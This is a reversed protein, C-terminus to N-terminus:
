SLFFFFLSLTLQRSLSHISHLSSLVQIRQKLFTRKEKECWEVCANCLALLCLTHKQVGNGDSMNVDTDCNNSQLQVKEAEVEPRKAVSDILSRCM